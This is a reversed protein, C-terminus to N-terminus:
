FEPCEACVRGRGGPPWFCIHFDVDFHRNGRPWECFSCLVVQNHLNGAVPRGCFNSFFMSIHAGVAGGAFASRPHMVCIAWRAVPRGFFYYAFYMYLRCVCYYSRVLVCLLLSDRDTRPQCVVRVNKWRPGNVRM